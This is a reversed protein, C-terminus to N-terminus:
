GQFGIEAKLAGLSRKGSGKEKELISLFNGKERGSM